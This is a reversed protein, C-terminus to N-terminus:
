EPQASREVVATGAAFGRAVTEEMPLNWFEHPSFLEVDVYTDYGHARLARLIEVTPSIGAGPECRRPDEESIRDCLHVGVVRDGHAALDEFLGPQDGSHWTDVLIGVVDKVGADDIIEATERITQGLTNVISAHVPEIAIKVGGKDAAEAVRLLGERLIARAEGETAFGDPSGFSVTISSPKYPALRTVAATIRRIREELDAPGIFDIGRWNESPLQVGAIPLITLVSIICNSVQLGAADIKRLNEADNAPLKMEMLGIAGFGAAAFASVDEDFTAQMTSMESLALKM